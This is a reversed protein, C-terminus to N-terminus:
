HIDFSWSASWCTTLLSHMSQTIVDQFFSWICSCCKTSAHPFQLTTFGYTNPLETSQGYSFKFGATVGSVCASSQAWYSSISHRREWKSRQAFNNQVSIWNFSSRMQMWRVESTHRPWRVCLSFADAAVIFRVDYLIRIISNNDSNSSLPSLHPGWKRRVAALM